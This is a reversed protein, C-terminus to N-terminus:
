KFVIIICLSEGDTNGVETVTFDSLFREVASMSEETYGTIVIRGHSIMSEHDIDLTSLELWLKHMTDSGTDEAFIVFGGDHGSGYENFYYEAESMDASPDDSGPSLNENDKSHEHDPEYHDPESNGNGSVNWGEPAFDGDVCVGGNMEDAAGPAMDASSDYHVGIFMLAAGVGVFVALAAALASMRKIMRRRNATRATNEAHVRAMVADHLGDPVPVATARVSDSVIKEIRDEEATTNINNNRTREMNNNDRMM